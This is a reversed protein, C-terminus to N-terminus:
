RSTEVLEPQEVSRNFNHAEESTVFKATAAAPVVSGSEDSSRIPSIGGSARWVEGGNRVAVREAPLSGGTLPRASSASNDHTPSSKTSPSFRLTIGSQLSAEAVSRQRSSPENSPDVAATVESSASKDQAQIPEQVSVRRNTLGNPETPASQDVAQKIRSSWDAPLVPLSQTEQPLELDELEGGADVKERDNVPRRASTKEQTPVTTNPAPADDERFPNTPTKDTPPLSPRSSHGPPVSKENANEAASPAPLTETSDNPLEKSRVPMTLDPMSEDVAKALSTQITGAERYGGERAIRAGHRFGNFWQEVMEKGQPSRAAVNWYDRPPVPPPEGTGGAYVYDVFGDVFGAHYDATMAIEGCSGVVQGWESEAWSRYLKLSRKGDVRHSYRAPERILTRNALYCPSTCGVFIASAITIASLKSGFGQLIFPTVAFACKPQARRLSGFRHILQSLALFARM